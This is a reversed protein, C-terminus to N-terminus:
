QEGLIKQIRLSDVNDHNMQVVGTDVYRYELVDGAILKLAQEVSDYGMEYQQQVISAACYEDSRILQRIEDSGDFGALALDARQRNQVSQALGVTSSNNLGVLGALETSADMFQYGQQEALRTDGRNIKIDELVKWSKPAYNCWYEQFGALREQITQSETSSIEIGITLYETDHRGNQHLLRVMEKAAMRGAQMNDTAVCVDFDVGNLITDVFILPIGAEKVQESAKIIQPIDVPSVIVADAKADIADQMLEVLYEPYTENPIGAVYLNCDNERAADTAGARLTDWYFSDYGKTILYIDPKGNDLPDSFEEFINAAVETETQQEKFTSCGTLALMLVATLVFACGKKM